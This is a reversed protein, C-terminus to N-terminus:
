KYVSIGIVMTRIKYVLPVITTESKQRNVTIIFPVVYPMRTRPLEYSIFDTSGNLPLEYSGLLCAPDSGSANQNRGAHLWFRAPYYIRSGVERM